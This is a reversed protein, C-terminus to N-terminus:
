KSKSSKKRSPKPIVPTTLPQMVGLSIILKFAADVSLNLEIIEKKSVMLFFGGTPNPTTPVFISILDAETHNVIEPLAAGTQFAITWLGKRPYEILVAKRFAQSNNSFLTQILQKSAKYVSSVFPIRELLLESWKVLYQGFVNTAILGTLILIVLSFLVGVGPINIQYDDPLFAMSGDFLRVIFQIVFITLLVPLWVILGAFIYSRVLKM